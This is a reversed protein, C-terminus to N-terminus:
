RWPGVIRSVHVANGQAVRPGIMKDVLESRIGPFFTVRLDMTSLIGETHSVVIKVEGELDILLAHVLLTAKAATSRGCDIKNLIRFNYPWIAFCTM